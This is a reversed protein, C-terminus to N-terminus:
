SIEALIEARLAADDIDPIIENEVIWLWRNVVKQFQLQDMSGFSVSQLELVTSGDPLVRLRFMKSRVKLYDKLDDLDKFRDTNDLIRTLLAHIFANQKISRPVRVGCLCRKGQGISRMIQSAVPDAPWLAGGRKLFVGEDAM